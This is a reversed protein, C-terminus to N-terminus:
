AAPQDTGNSTKGRDAAVPGRSALTSVIFTFATFSFTILILQGVSVIFAVLSVLWDTSSPTPSLGLPSQAVSLLLYSLRDSLFGPHILAQSGAVGDEMISEVEAVGSALHAGYAFVMLRATIGLVFVAIGLGLRQGHSYGPSLYHFRSDAPDGEAVDLIDCFYSLMPLLCIILAVFLVIKPNLDYFGDNLGPLAHDAGDITDVLKAGLLARAEDLGERPDDIVARLEAKSIPVYIRENTPFFDLGSLWFLPVLLAVVFLLNYNSAKEWKRVPWIRTIPLFALSTYNILAWLQRLNLIM